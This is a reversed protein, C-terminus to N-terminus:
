SFPPLRSWLDNGVGSRAMQALAEKHIAVDRANDRLLEGLRENVEQALAVHIGRSLPGAREVIRDHLGLVASLAAEETFPRQIRAAVANKWRVLAGVAVRVDDVTAKSMPELVVTLFPRGHRPDERVWIASGREPDSAVTGEVVTAPTSGAALQQLCQCEEPPLRCSLCNM